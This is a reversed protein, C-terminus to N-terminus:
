SDGRDRAMKSLRDWREAAAFLKALDNMLDGDQHLADGGIDILRDYVRHYADLADKEEDM